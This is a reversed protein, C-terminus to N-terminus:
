RMAEGGVSRLVAQVIAEASDLDGFKKRAARILAAAESLKYGLQMLVMAAEDEVEDLASAPGASAGAEFAFATLKGKLTAIIKDATRKGVGPLDSLADRDGAEIARALEGPAVIMAKLAKKSGLGPVKILHEFLERESKAMFGVLRPTLTPSGAGGELYHHIFLEVTEGKAKGLERSLYSPALLEYCVDGCRVEVLNEVVSLVEGRLRSIVSRGEARFCANIFRM